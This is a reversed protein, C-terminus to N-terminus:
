VGSLHRYRPQLHRVLGVGDDSGDVLSDLYRVMVLLALTDCTL